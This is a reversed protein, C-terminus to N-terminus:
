WGWCKTAPWGFQLKTIPLSKWSKQFWLRQWQKTGNEDFKRLSTMIEHHLLTIKVIWPMEKFLTDLACTWVMRLGDSRSVLDLSFCDLTLSSGLSFVILILIMLFYNNKQTLLKCYLMSNFSFWYKKLLNRFNSNSPHVRPFGLLQFIYLFCISLLASKLTPLAIKM